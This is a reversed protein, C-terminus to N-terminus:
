SGQLRGIYAKDVNTMITNINGDITKAIFVKSRPDYYGMKWQGDHYYSFPEKQLVSRAQDASVGRGELRQLAHDTLGAVDDVDDAVEGEWTIEGIGECACSEDHGSFYGGCNHVLIPIDAALV